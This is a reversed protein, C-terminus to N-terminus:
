RARFENQWQDFKAKSAALAAAPNAAAKVAELNELKFHDTLVPREEKWLLGVPVKSRDHAIELAANRDSPDHDALDRLNERFWAYTNLANYTVCPSQINILAFGRHNIGQQLLDVMGKLDGAFGQAVFSAGAAMALELPNVPEAMPGLPSAKTSMTAATTPSTQGKTLGYVQNDMVIYTMDANRRAAHMFHGLGIGFGDGDGGAVLVKLNPNALKVGTAAPLARGHIGHFGYSRFYATINGSCGIGTVLVTEAPDMSLGAAAQQMARLVGFDGCGACWIPEKGNYDKWTHQVQSM